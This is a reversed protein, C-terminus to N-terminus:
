RRLRGWTTSLRYSNSVAQSADGYFFTAGIDVKNVTADFNAPFDDVVGYPIGDINAIDTMDVGPVAMYCTAWNDGGAFEESMLQYSKGKVLKVSSKLMEYVFAGDQVEFQESDQGVIAQTMIEKTEVDWLTLTHEQKFVATIPRGLALVNTDDNMTFQIGTVGSYDNRTPPRVVNFFSEMDKGYITGVATLSLVISMTIAFKMIKM